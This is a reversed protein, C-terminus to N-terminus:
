TWSEHFGDARKRVDETLSADYLRGGLRAFLAALARQKVAALPDLSATPERSSRVVATHAPVASARGNDQSSEQAKLRESLKM